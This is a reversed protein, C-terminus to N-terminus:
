VLPLTGDEAAVRGDVVRWSDGKPEVTASADAQGLQGGVEGVIELRSGDLTRTRSPRLRVDVPTGVVRGVVESEALFREAVQHARRRSAGKWALYGVLAAFAIFGYALVGGVVSLADEGADARQLVFAVIGFVGLM